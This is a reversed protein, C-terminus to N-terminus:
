TFYALSFIYNLKELQQSDEKQEQLRATNSTHFGDVFQNVKDKIAEATADFEAMIKNGGEPGHDIYAQAMKQGTKYYSQYVPLLSRYNNANNSDLKILQNISRSFLQVSIEAEKFGDDLGDLARTASIDTLWQQTQLVSIQLQHFNDTLPQIIKANATMDDKIETTLNILLAMQVMLLTFFLESFLWLKQIISTNM